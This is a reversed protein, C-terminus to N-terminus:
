KQTCDTFTSQLLAGVADHSRALSQSWSTISINIYLQRSVFIDKKRIDPIYHHKFAGEHSEAADSYKKEHLHEYKTDLYKYM